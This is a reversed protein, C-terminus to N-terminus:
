VRFEGKEVREAFEVLDGAASEWAEREWGDGCEFSDAYDKWEAAQDRLAEAILRREAQILREGAEQALREVDALTPDATTDTM